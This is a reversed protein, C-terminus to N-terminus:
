IDYSHWENITISLLKYSLVLHKPHHCNFYFKPFSVEAERLYQHIEEAYETVNIMDSGFDSTDESQAHLSSEVLM